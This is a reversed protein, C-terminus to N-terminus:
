KPLSMGDIKLLFKIVRKVYRETDKKPRLGNRRNQWVFSEWRHNYFYGSRSLEYILTCFDDFMSYGKRIIIIRKIYPSPSITYTYGALNDKTYIVQTRMRWAQKVMQTFQDSAWREHLKNRKVREQITM